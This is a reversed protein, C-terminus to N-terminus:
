TQNQESDCRSQSWSQVPWWCVLTTFCLACLSLVGLHVFLGHLSWESLCDGSLFFDLIKKREPLLLLWQETRVYLTLRIFLTSLTRLMKDVEAIWCFFVHFESMINWLSIYKLCKNRNCKFIVSHVIIPIVQSIATFWNAVVTLTIKNLWEQVRIKTGLVDHCSDM